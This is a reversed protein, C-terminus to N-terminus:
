QDYLEQDGLADPPVCYDSSNGTPTKLENMKNELSITDDSKKGSDSRKIPGSAPRTGFSEPVEIAAGDKKDSLFWLEMYSNPENRREVTTHARQLGSQHSKLRPSSVSIPTSDSQLAEFIKTKDSVSSTRSRANRLQSQLEELEVQLEDARKLCEEREKKKIAITNLISKVEDTNHQESEETDMQAQETLCDFDSEFIPHTGM